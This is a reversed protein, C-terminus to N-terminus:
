AEATSWDAIIQKLRAKGEEIDEQQAAAVQPFFGVEITELVPRASQNYFVGYWVGSVGTEMWEAPELSGELKIRTAGQGLLDRILQREEQSLGMKDIFVRWCQRTSIFRELAESIEALVARVGPTIDDKIM